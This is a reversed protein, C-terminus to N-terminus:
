KHETTKKWDYCSYNLSRATFGHQNLLQTALNAYPCLRGRCYVIITKEKPLRSLSTSLSDLPVNIAADIHGAQYEETPRVDLILDQKAEDIAEGLTITRVGEQRNARAHLMKVESLENEGVSVLLAVLENIQPSSLQYIVHNGDKVTRVLRSDKLVQLHRSTNAVSMGTEQAIRDVVKPSQSLLDLIELRKDSSLGKGVRSLEKYLQHKYEVAQQNM